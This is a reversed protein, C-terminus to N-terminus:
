VPGKRVSRWRRVMGIDIMLVATIAIASVVVNDKYPYPNWDHFPGFLLYGIVVSVFLLPTSGGAYEVLEEVKIVGKSVLFFIAFFNCFVIASLWRGYDTAIPLLILGSLTALMMLLCAKRHAGSNRLAYSWLNCLVLFVPSLIVLAIVFNVISGPDFLSSSSLAVHDKITYFCERMSLETLSFATRSQILTSFEEYGMEPHGYKYLAFFASAV